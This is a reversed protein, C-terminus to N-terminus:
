ASRVAAVFASLREVLIEVALVLAVDVCGVRCLMWLTQLRGLTRVTVTHRARM